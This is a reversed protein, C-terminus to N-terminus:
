QTWRRLAPSRSAFWGVVALTAIGGGVVSGVPGLWAATWGSEVAGLQNSCSIFISNVALVRGRLHDPAKTQVLSQRLVVSVNDFAGTLVLMAFSLWLSRSLGFVITAAGFGGVTALLVRGAREIRRSHALAFAMSVAGLAPAARLWGLGRAGTHLIDVAFIPLLATAGGFLVAFMDLSIAPLILPHQRVFRLGELLAKGAPTKAEPRASGRVHLFLFCVLTLLACGCQVAYVSGSGVAAVLVGALAPGGINAIEFASSNWTIANQLMQVPVVDPLVASRAPGQLARATAILFLSSYILAVSRPLVLLLASAALLLMQTINMIRRRDYRDAIHGAFLAFVIFPAVQAFGVNGLVIASHTQQYLDWSVAVWLMQLGFNTLFTGGVLLRYDRFRFSAYPDLEQNECAHQLLRGRNRRAAVAASQNRSFERRKNYQM